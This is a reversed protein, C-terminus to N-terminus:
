PLAREFIPDAVAAIFFPFVFTAGTLLFLDFPTALRYMGSILFLVFFIAPAGMAGFLACMVAAYWTM